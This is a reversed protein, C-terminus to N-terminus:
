NNTNRNCNFRCEVITGCYNILAIDKTNYRLDVDRVVAFKVLNTM